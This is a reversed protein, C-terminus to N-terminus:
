KYYKYAVNFFSFKFNRGAKKNCFLIEKQGGLLVLDIRKFM